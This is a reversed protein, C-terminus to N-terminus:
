LQTAIAATGLIAKLDQDNFNLGAGVFYNLEPDVEETGARYRTFDDVGGVIYIHKFFLISAYAKLHATRRIADDSNEFDFAEFTFKLRDRFLFFDSGLGGTSEFLGFRLAVFYWRKAFQLNFRIAGKEKKREITRGGGLDEVEKDVVEESLDTFGVVYYKDPRTQLQLNFYNQTSDDKRYEGHYDVTVQLKTAPKIVERIDKLTSEVEKITSDENILKGLTGDGRELREAVLKVSNATAEVDEMSNDFRALIRDIRQRNETDVIEKISASFERLDDTATRVNTVIKSLDQEQGALVNRLSLSTANLNEIMDRIEKRNEAIIGRTEGTIAEIDEVIQGITREGKKGGLVAALAETVQKVDKAIAGVLSVVQNMGMSDESVPIFGGNKVYEGNDSRRVIEIHSDGLLGTQRVEVFSDLPIKVSADVELEVRTRNNELDISKVKGVTVGNTKVHTRPIISAADTIHTYYIHSDSKEFTDPSLVFFMYGTTVLAVITFLGVKFETGLSGM